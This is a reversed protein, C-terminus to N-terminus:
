KIKLDRYLNQAVKQSKTMFISIESQYGEIENQFRTENELNNTQYFQKFSSINHSNNM